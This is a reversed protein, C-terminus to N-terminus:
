PVFITSLQPPTAYIYIYEIYICMYICLYMYVCMWFQRSGMQVGPIGLLWSKCISVGRIPHRCGAWYAPRRNGATVMGSHNRSIVSSARSCTLSPTFAKSFYDGFIYTHIYTCTIYVCLYICIFMYVCLFAFVYM